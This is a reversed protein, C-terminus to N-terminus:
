EYMFGYYREIIAALEQVSITRTRRITEKGEVFLIITPVMFTHFVSAIQPVDESEVRFGKLHEFGEAMKEIKPFLDKCMNCNKSTLYGVVMKEEQILNQIEEMNKYTKIM